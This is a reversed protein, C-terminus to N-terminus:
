RRRKSVLLSWTTAGVHAGGDNASVRVRYRASRQLRRVRFRYTSTSNPTRVARRRVFAWGGSRMRRQLTARGKPVGPQIRGRLTVARRTKQTSRLGVRARVRAGIVTSTVPVPTRTVARFHTATFITRAAFRFDGSSSTRATAVLEFAATYPFASGELAVMLGNVGSGQVRGSVTIFRGWAATSPLVSLTVGTPARLTTFRNTGTRRVGAANSAVVRWYYKTNPTLNELTVSISAPTDGAPITQDPTNTGFSATTGWEIHWTTAARNPDIRATLRASFQTKDVVKVGGIGPVAPNPPAATTTFKADAGKVDGAVLRYHYTTPNGNPDVTGNLTATTTGPQADGTTVPPPDQAGATAPALLILAVMTALLTRM